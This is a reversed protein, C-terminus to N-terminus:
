PWVLSDWLHVSNRRGHRKEFLASAHADVLSVGSCGGLERGLVEGFM